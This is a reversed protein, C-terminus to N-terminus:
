TRLTENRIPSMPFHKQNEKTCQQQCNASTFKIRENSALLDCKHKTPWWYPLIIDYDSALPTVKFSVRSFHDRYQLILLAAYFQGVGEVVQRAYDQIPRISPRHEVPIQKTQTFTRSLLPVTSGIDLLIRVVEEREGLHMIM